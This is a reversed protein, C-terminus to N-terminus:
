FVRDLDCSETALFDNTYNGINGRYVDLYCDVVTDWSFDQARVQSRSALDKRLEPEHIVLIMAEALADTDGAPVVLGDRGNRVMDRCGPGDTTIIPLGAAMAEALVVGFTEILSPFVFVDAALYLDVLSQVPLRVDTYDITGTQEDIQIYDEVGAQKALPILDSTGPGAIVIRFPASTEQSIRVASNILASFNKKPRNRGVALFMLEDDSLGLSARISSRRRREGFRELDVGNPIRLIREDTVGIAHYEDVVSDSIAVLHDALPLYKRILQDIRPDLRVGYGITNDCQIDEGACRVLYRRDSHRCAFHILAVGIPYGMTGHWFDFKYKIQLNGFFRDLLYLGLRPWLGMVTFIKPPFREIVYPLKWEKKRLLQNNLYPVVVVPKHGRVVLRSALNHLGVEVGGLFPLFSSSPLAICLSKNM